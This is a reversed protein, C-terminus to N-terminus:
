EGNNNNDSKAFVTGKADDLVQLGGEEQSYKQDCVIHTAPVQESKVNVPFEAGDEETNATKLNLDSVGSKARVSFHGDSPKSYGDSASQDMNSNDCTLNLPM